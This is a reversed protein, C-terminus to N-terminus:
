LIQGVSWQVKINVSTANWNLWILCKIQKNCWIQRRILKKCVGREQADLGWGYAICRLHFHVDVGRKFSFLEGIKNSPSSHMIWASQDVLVAMLVANWGSTNRQDMNLPLQLNFKPLNVYKIKSTRFLLLMNTKSYTICNAFSKIDLGRIRM